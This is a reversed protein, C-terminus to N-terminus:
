DITFSRSIPATGQRGTRCANRLLCAHALVGDADLKAHLSVVRRTGDTQRVLKQLFEHGV